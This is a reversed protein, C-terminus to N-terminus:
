ARHICPEVNLPRSFSRTPPFLSKEATLCGCCHNACDRQLVPIIQFRLQTHVGCPFFFFGRLDSEGSELMNCTVLRAIYQEVADTMSRQQALCKRLESVESLVSVSKGDRIESEMHTITNRLATNRTTRNIRDTANLPTASATNADDDDGDDDDSSDDLDRRRSDVIHSIDSDNFM